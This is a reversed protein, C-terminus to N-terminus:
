PQEFATISWLFDYMPKLLKFEDLLYKYLDESFVLDNIPQTSIMCLEKKQYWPLLNKPVDPNIIRKYEDGDASFRGTDMIPKIVRKFKTPNTDIVHRLNDMTARLPSYYGMGYRWFTPFLEFFFCPTIKWDKSPRKFTIWMNNRYPQKNHSYRVDRNIRSITKGVGPKIEFYPDLELMYPGMTGVLSKFPAILSSLYFDRNDDMWVKSNNFGLQELFILTEPFFGKFSLDNKATM